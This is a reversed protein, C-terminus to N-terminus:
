GDGSAPTRAAAGNTGSSSSNNRQQAAGGDEERSIRLAELLDVREKCQTELAKLSELLARETESKPTYSPKSPSNHSIQNLATKWYQMAEKENGQSEYYVATSCTLYSEDYTKQLNSVAKNAWM